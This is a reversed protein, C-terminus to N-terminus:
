KNLFATCGELLGSFDVAEYPTKVPDHGAGFHSDRIDEVYGISTGDLIWEYQEEVTPFYSADLTSMLDEPDVRIYNGVATCSEEQHSARYDMAKVIARMTAKYAEPDEEIWASRVAWNSPTVPLERGVTTAVQMFENTTDALLEGWVPAFCVCFDPSSDGSSMAATIGSNSTQVIVIENAPTYTDLKPFNANNASDRFWVADADSLGENLKTVLNKLFTGPTAGLDVAVSAGKLANRLEENSSDETLGDGKGGGRAILRDDNTLNDIAVLKVDSDKTFYNWSVGNGLFGIDLTNTQLGQIVLPGTTVQINAVVNEEAYYGQTEALVGVASGFNQHVGVRVNYTKNTPDDGTQSNDCGTLTLGTLAFAALGLLIKSKKM